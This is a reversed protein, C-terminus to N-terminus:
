CGEFTGLVSGLLLIAPILGITWGWKDKVAAWIVAIPSALGILLLSWFVLGSTSCVSTFNQVYLLTIWGTTVAALGAVGLKREKARGLGFLKSLLGGSRLLRNEAQKLRHWVEDVPGTTDVKLGFAESHRMFAEALPMEAEGYAIGIVQQGAISIRAARGNADWCLYEDNEIDSPEMHYLVKDPSEVLRMSCDDKEFVFLPFSVSVDM